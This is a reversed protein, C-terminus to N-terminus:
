ENLEFDVETEKLTGINLIKNKTESFLIAKNANKFILVQDGRKAGTFFAKDKLLEEKTITAIVPIEDPLVIIKSIQDVIKNDTKIDESKQIKLAQTRSSGFFWILFISLIILGSIKLFKARFERTQFNTM